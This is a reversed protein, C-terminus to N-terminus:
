HGLDCADQDEHARQTHLPPPSPPLTLFGSVNTGRRQERFAIIEDRRDQCCHKSRPQAQGCTGPM